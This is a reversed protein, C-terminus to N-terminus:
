EKGIQSHLIYALFAELDGPDNIVPRFGKVILPNQAFKNRSFPRLYFFRSITERRFTIELIVFHM